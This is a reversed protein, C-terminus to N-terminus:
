LLLKSVDDYFLDDPKLEFIKAIKLSMLYSLKRKGNELQWYFTKSIELISAMYNLSYKKDLRIQKLKDM